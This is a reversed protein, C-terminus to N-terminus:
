NVVVSYDCSDALLQDHTVVFIQRNSGVKQGIERLARRFGSRNAEDLGAAPEDLCLIGTNHGFLSDLAARFALALVVKQGGSLLSAKVPGAIGSAGDFFVDFQLDDSAEVRFPDDFLELNKNIDGVLLQLNQQAVLKPLSNWHFVAAVEEVTGTLNRLRAVSELKDKLGALVGEPKARLSLAVERSAKLSRQNELKFRIDELEQNASIISIDSVEEKTALAKERSTLEKAVDSLQVELIEIKQDRSELAQSGALKCKKIQERLNRLKEWSQLIAIFDERAPVPVALRGFFKPLSEFHGSAALESERISQLEHHHLNVSVLKLREELEALERKSKRLSQQLKEKQIQFDVAERNLKDHEAQQARVFEASVPQQCTPCESDFGDALDKHNDLFEIIIRNNDYLVAMQKDLDAIQDQQTIMLNKDIKSIESKCKEQEQVNEVYKKIALVEADYQGIYDELNLNSNRPENLFNDLKGPFQSDKLSIEEFGKSSIFKLVLDKEQDPFKWMIQNLREKVLDREKVADQKASFFESVLKKQRLIEAKEGKQVEGDSIIQQLEQIRHDPAQVQNEFLKEDIESIKKDIEQIQEILEPSNDIVETHKHRSIFDQCAKHISITKDIGCLYQFTKSRESSSASLFSFMQWQDVFVYKDIVQKNLGLTHETVENIESEKTFKKDGIILSSRKGQLGRVLTFDVGRHSGRLQIYSKGGEEMANNVADLKKPALRKFDNTLAAYISNIVTSKGSGNVGLVAITGCAPLQRTFVGSHPGVNSISIETLIMLKEKKQLIKYFM